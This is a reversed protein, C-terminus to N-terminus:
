QRLSRYWGIIGPSASALIIFLVAPLLYRDPDPIVAGFFHGLTILGASWCFAGIVNYLFFVRYHMSGAGALIPAFTRVIPMFRALVIALRGYKAFFQETQALYAKKFYWTDQWGYLEKGILRGFWYGFADGLVAATFVLPILVYLSSYGQSSLVGLTFLLSDGPLLAGIFVGSEAFVIAFIGLYGVSSALMMLDIGFLESM